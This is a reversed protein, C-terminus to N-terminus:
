AGGKVSAVAEILKHYDDISVLMATCEDFDLCEEANIEIAEAAALLEDRQKEAADARKQEELGLSLISGVGGDELSNTGIGECANVCAVIRSARHESPDDTRLYACAVDDGKADVIDGNGVNKWPEKMNM